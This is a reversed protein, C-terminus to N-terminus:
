PPKLIQLVETQNEGASGSVAGHKWARHLVRTVVVVSRAGGARSSQRMGLHQNTLLGKQITRLVLILMITGVKGDLSFSIVILTLSAFLQVVSGNGHRKPPPTCIGELWGGAESSIYELFICLIYVICLTDRFVLCIM